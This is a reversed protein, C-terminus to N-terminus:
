PCFRELITQIINTSSRDPVFQITTVRGGAKEVENRGVITELTYDGGKVLVDPLLTTILRLPTEEDFVVVCDVSRLASLVAARDEQHVIPKKEGKIARVSSDSNLGLILIDGLAKAQALYECHGRHIIDFVGNTFVVVKGEDRWRRRLRCAVDIDVLGSSEIM